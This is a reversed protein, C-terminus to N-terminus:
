GQRPEALPPPAAATTTRAPTSALNEGAGAALSQRASCAVDAGSLPDWRDSVGDIRLRLKSRKAVSLGQTPVSSCFKQTTTDIRSYTSFHPVLMCNVRTKASIPQPCQSRAAVGVEARSTPTAACCHHNQRAHQSPERRSRCSSKSPRRPRCNQHSELNTTTTSQRRAPPCTAKTAEQPDTVAAMTPRCLPQETPIYVPPIPPAWATPGGTVPVPTHRDHIRGSGRRGTEKVSHM